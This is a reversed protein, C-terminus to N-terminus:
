HTYALFHALARLDADNLGYLAAVMITDAGKRTYTLYGNMAALLYEERQAALRPMQERGRFDAEHCSGCHLKNALAAGRRMLAPDPNGQPAAPKQAAYYRALSRIEADKLGQVAPAMNPEERMGERLLVLQNELFIAPQGALSPTGPISSIGGPGHCEACRPLREPLPQAFAPLVLLATLWAWRGDRLLRM